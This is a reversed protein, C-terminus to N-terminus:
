PTKQALELFTMKRGDFPAIKELLRALIQCIRQNEGYLLLREIAALLSNPRNSNFPEL